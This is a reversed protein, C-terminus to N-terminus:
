PGQSGEVGTFNSQCITWTSLSRICFPRKWSYWFWFQRFARTGKNFTLFQSTHNELSRSQQDMKWKVAGHFYQWVPRLAATAAMKYHFIVIRYHPECVLKESLKGTIQLDLNSNLVTNQNNGITVGRTISWFYEPWWLSTKKRSHEHKNSIIISDIDNSVV